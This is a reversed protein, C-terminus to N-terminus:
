EQVFPISAQEFQHSILDDLLRIVEKKECETLLIFKQYALLNLINGDDFLLM